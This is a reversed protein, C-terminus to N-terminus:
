LKVLVGVQMPGASLNVNELVKNLVAGKKHILTYMIGDFLLLFGGQMLLSNGFGFRKDRKAPNNKSSERFAIGATIYALDLGANFLFTKEMAQQEKMTEAFNLQKKKAAPMRLLTAGALAGNVIGWYMNMQHFYKTSGSTQGSFVAGSIINATAWTGLVIMGKKQIGLQSTRFEQLNLAPEQANASIALAILFTFLTLRLM